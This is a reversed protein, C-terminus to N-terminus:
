SLSVTGTDRKLILVLHLTPACTDGAWYNCRGRATVLPPQAVLQTTIGHQKCDAGHMTLAAACTCTQVLGSCSLPARLISMLSPSHWECSVLLCKCPM